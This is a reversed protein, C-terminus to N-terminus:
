TVIKDTSGGPCGWFSLPYNTTAAAQAAIIYQHSVYSSADFNSAFMKDALVYQKAMDWYPRSETKPVYSYPPVKIPCPPFGSKGCQWTENNFGHMKCDTGPISGVGNCAAYYGDSNPALDWATSLGVPKLTMKRKKSDFGYSSSHAGPFGMFLNNFSRNEQVIIIIHKIKNVGAPQTMGSATSAYEDPPLAPAAGGHCGALCAGAAFAAVILGSRRRDTM